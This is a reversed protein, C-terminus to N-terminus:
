GCLGLLFDWPVLRLIRLTLTLGFALNRVFSGLLLGSAAELNLMPFSMIISSEHSTRPVQPPFYFYIFTLVSKPQLWHTQADSTTKINYGVPLSAIVQCDKALPFRITQHGEVLVSQFGSMSSQQADAM